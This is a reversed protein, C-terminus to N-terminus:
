IVEHVIEADLRLKGQRRTTVNMLKPSKVIIESESKRRKTQPRETSSESATTPRKTRKTTPQQPTSPTATVFSSTQM